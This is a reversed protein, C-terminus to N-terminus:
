ATQFCYESLKTYISGAAGPQSRYLYFRDSVFSGFEAAGLQTIALRPRAFDHDELRVSVAQLLAPHMGLEGGFVILSCNLSTSSNKLSSM